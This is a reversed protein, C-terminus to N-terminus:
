DAAAAEPFEVRALRRRLDQARRRISGDLIRDEMRVVVGGILEPDVSFRPVVARGLKAELALRIEEQFAADPEHSLSVDVRVRGQMRDVLERYADAIQPLMGQRRKDAVVLLFRLFPQPVRGEFAARLAQKKQEVTVRPTALFAAIRPEGRLLAAVEDAAAGYAEVAEPGGQRRALSLLVEAYNRAVIPSAM